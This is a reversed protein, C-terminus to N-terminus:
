FIHFGFIPTSLSLLHKRAPRACVPLVAYGATAAVPAEVVATASAEVIAPRVITRDVVRNYVRRSSHVRHYTRKAGCASADPAAVAFMTMGLALAVMGTFVKM